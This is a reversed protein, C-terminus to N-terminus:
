TVEARRFLVLAAVGCVALTASLGVLGFLHGPMAGGSGIFRSWFNDPLATISRQGAAFGMWGQVWTAPTWRGIGPVAAAVLMAIDIGASTAMTGITGRTVVAALLGIGAFAALVLLSRGAQSGAWTAAQGVPEHPDPLRYARTLIPGAVTLAAWCAAIVGVGALWLSVFKAVLVRWRHGCQTLVNKLTRGSWEGGVHGGALLALVLAGPLSAMLGAAEAGAAVPNLQASTRTAASLMQRRNEALRDGMRARVDACAPGEPVGMASCSVPRTAEVTYRHANAAGGIALLVCFLMAALTVGWLLPRNLKRLEARLLRM